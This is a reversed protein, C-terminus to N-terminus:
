KHKPCLGHFADMCVVDSEYVTDDKGCDGHPAENVMVCEMKGKNDVLKYGSEGLPKRPQPGPFGHLADNCDLEDNYVTGPQGWVGHPAEGLARKCVGDQAKFGFPIPINNERMCAPMNTYVTGPKGSEGHPAEDVRICKGNVAKFGWAGMPEKYILLSIILLAVLLGIWISFNTELEPM